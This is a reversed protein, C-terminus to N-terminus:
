LGGWKVVQKLLISIFAGKKGKLFFPAIEAIGATIGLAVNRISLERTDTKKEKQHFLNQLPLPMKAVASEVISNRLLPVFNQQLCKARNEIADSLEDSKTQLDNKQKQLIEMPTLKKPQMTKKKHFLRNM